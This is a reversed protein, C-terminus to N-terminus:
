QIPWAPIGVGICSGLNAGFAAESFSAKAQGHTGKAGLRSEGRRRPDCIPPHSGAVWWRTPAPLWDREALPAIAAAEIVSERGNM